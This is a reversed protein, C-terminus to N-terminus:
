NFNVQDPKLGNKKQRSAKYSIFTNTRSTFYRRNEKFINNFNAELHQNSSKFSIHQRAEKTQQGFITRTKCKNRLKRLINTHVDGPANSTKSLQHTSNTSMGPHTQFKIDPKGFHITFSRRVAM